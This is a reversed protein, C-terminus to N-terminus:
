KIEFRRAASWAGANGAADHARVRWWMRQEPLTGNTYQSPTVTAGATLPAAITSSNDIEITYSAAGAVESWDFTISTGPSFEEDAAPRLLSPAPLTGSSPATVTVGATRTLGALVASITVGTSATVTTTAVTFTASTAGAAVTVTAPVSAAAASSSLSVIAGGAPAASTLTVTGQSASGGTVSAPSLTLTNLSAPPPVPAVTLTASRSAGGYAGTLTVSASASVAVTAVTFTASTAGAPVTVSAPVTAAGTNSSSLSVVAGGTPAAATLAATGTASAPGIVSTPSVSLASLSPAGAAAQPRFRRTASFPGFAGAANRARVRWWLRQAPLGGITAQSLSVTLNARFPAAITSSDDVQIEYSVANAVDTWDFTVPQAPTAGAAPSLLTPAAPVPAPNVTLAAGRTVGSLAASLTASTSATVPSTTVTFSASTAGAPVTVGTPVTVATSNDSLAVLAGGSPAAGSLTVTGTTPAGGVVSTPSVSLASLTVGTTAPATVILLAQRGTGALDAFINANVTGTVPTTAIAFTASTAGAPVTVSAPLVAVAPVPTSLAVVAGGSPAAVSLSVTGTSSAGGVVSTPNVSVASLLPPPPAALVRLVASFAYRGDTATITVDTNAAPPQTTIPVQQGLVTSAPMVVTAPVSAIAPHSSTLEITPGGGSSIGSVDLQGFTSQGGTVPNLGTIKFDGLTPIPLAPPPDPPVMALWAHGGRGNTTVVSGQDGWDGVVDIFTIAPVYSTAVDFGVSSAGTPITIGGDHPFVSANLNIGNIAGPVGQNSIAGPLGQTLAAGVPAEAVLTAPVRDGSTIHNQSLAVPNPGTTACFDNFVVDTPPVRRCGISCEQRFTCTGFETATAPTCDYLIEPNGGIPGIRGCIRGQWQFRAGPAVGSTFSPPPPPATVTLTDSRTAAHTASITVTFALGSYRRYRANTGVTFTATTAGEPVTIRPVTAALEVNSSALTVVVGGAPAPANLTITGTSSGASGGAITTPDLTLSLVGEYVESQGAAAHSRADANSPYQSTEGGGETGAKAEARVTVPVAISVAARFSGTGDGFLVSVPDGFGSAVVLDSRGDGNLDGVALASPRAGATLHGAPALGGSADGLLITVSQAGANAVAVDTLGDQNFDGAALASAVSGVPLHVASKVGGQGDGLFLALYSGAGDVVALDAQGDADLDAVLAAGLRGARRFQAPRLGRGAPDGPRIEVGAAFREAVAHDPIGDGNFDGVAVVRQRAGAPMAAAPGLAGTGDGPLLWVTDTGTESVALDAHGDGNFDGVAVARDPAGALLFTAPIGLGSMGNRYLALLGQPLGAEFSTANGSPAERGGGGSASARELLGAACLGALLIVMARTLLRASPGPHM